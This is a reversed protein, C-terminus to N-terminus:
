RIGQCSQGALTILKKAGCRMRRTYGQMYMLFDCLSAKMFMKNLMKVPLMITHMSMIPADAM